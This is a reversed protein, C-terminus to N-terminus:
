KASSNADELDPLGKELKKSAAAAIDDEPELELVRRWQFKAETTRDLRWYVDGLHDTITPDAPVLQAAKELHGVAEGYNGLQYHAWGLSDIIAGSEPNLAIAKGILEFAQDLNIGREAWSYGLYNLVTPQEPAIEYAKQLDAEAEQWRELNILSEARSIYFRWIDMEPTEGLRDIAQTIVSVAERNEGEISLLTGLTLRAEIADPHRKIARKLNSIAEANKNQRSLASAMDMRSQEFYPSEEPVGNLLEIAADYNEYIILTTSVMRRADVLNPDLYLALQGLALPLNYQPTGINFGKKAMRDRESAIQELILAGYSYLAIAAGERASVNKYAQSPKGADLRALGLEAARRAPGPERKLANYFERAQTDSDARELFTGYAYRGVPGALQFLSIQYNERALAQDDARDALLAKHTSNFGKFVETGASDLKEIASVPNNIDAELWVNILYSVSKSFPENFEGSLTSRASKLNGQRVASAALTLRALDNSNEAGPVALARAYPRADEIEGAALHYFFAERVVNYNQPAKRVANGYAEAADDVANVRAALRGALYDGTLSKKSQVSTCGVTALLALFICATKRISRM